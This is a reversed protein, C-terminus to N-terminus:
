IALDALKMFEYKLRQADFHISEFKHSNRTLINIV